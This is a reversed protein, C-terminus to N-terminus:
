FNDQKRRDALYDKLKKQMVIRYAPQYAARYVDSHHVSPCGKERYLILFYDLEAAYFPTEDQEAMQSLSQLKKQFQKKDGKVTKATDLFLSFIDEVPIGKKICPRLNLRCLGNGISEYLPENEGGTLGDMEQQLRVLAKKPDAILHEPGFENQYILKVADQPQMKPYQDFHSALINRIM